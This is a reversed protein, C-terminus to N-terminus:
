VDMFVLIPISLAPPCLMDPDLCKNQEQQIKKMVGFCVCVCVCLGFVSTRIEARRKTKRGMSAKQLDTSVSSFPFDGANEPRM